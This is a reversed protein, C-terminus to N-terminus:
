PMSRAFPIQIRDAVLNKWARKIRLSRFGGGTPARHRCHLASARDGSGGSSISRIGVRGFRADVDELGKLLFGYQRMTAGLFSPAICFVV